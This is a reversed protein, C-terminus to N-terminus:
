RDHPSNIYMCEFFQKDMTAYNLKQQRSLENADSNRICASLLTSYSRLNESVRIHAQLLITDIFYPRIGLERLEEALPRLDLRHGMSYVIIYM